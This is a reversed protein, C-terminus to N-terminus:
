YAVATGVGHEDVGREHMGLEVGDVWMGVPVSSDAAREDV